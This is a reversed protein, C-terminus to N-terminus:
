MWLKLSIRDGFRYGYPCGFEERHRKNGDKWLKRGDNCYAYGLNNGNGNNTNFMDNFDTTIIGICISGVHDLTKFKAIYTKNEAGSIDCTLYGSNTVIFTRSVVIMKTNNEKFKTCDGKLNYDFSADQIQKFYDVFQKIKFIILDTFINMSLEYQYERIFGYILPDIQTEDLYHENLKKSKNINRNLKSKHKNTKRSAIKKKIPDHNAKNSIQAVQPVNRKPGNNSITKQTPWFICLLILSSVMVFVTFAFQIISPIQVDNKSPTSESMFEPHYNPHYNM